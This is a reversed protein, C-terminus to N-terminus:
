LPNPLPAHGHNLYRFDPSDVPSCPLVGAPVPSLMHGPYSIPNSHPQHMPVVKYSGSSHSIIRFPGCVQCSLKAVRNHDANSQVQVRVLVLDNPEFSPASRGENVRDGHATQRDEVTKSLRRRDEVTKSPRRRDEVTKSPRRRDEVTKSPRRRDEVTTSRRRRDEVTKSPRRRDEVTKSPRRRDEVTKSPRRRDKVTKSPRQRDKVTKSPRRRRTRCSPPCFRCAPFHAQYTRPSLHWRRASARCSHASSHGFRHRFSISNEVWPPSVASSTPAMLQAAIGPM